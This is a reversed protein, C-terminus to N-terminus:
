FISSLFILFQDCVMQKFRAITNPMSMPFIREDLQSFREESEDPKTIAVTVL